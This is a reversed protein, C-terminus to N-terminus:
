SKAFKSSAAHAYPDLLLTFASSLSYRRLFCPCCRVGLNQEADAYAKGWTQIELNSMAASVELRSEAWNVQLVAATSQSGAESGPMLWPRLVVGAATCGQGPELTLQLHASPAHVGALRHPKGPTVEMNQLTSPRGERLKLVEQAPAQHM